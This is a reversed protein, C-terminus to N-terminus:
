KSLFNLFYQNVAGPLRRKCKDCYDLLLIDINKSYLIQQLQEFQSIPAFQVGCEQCTILKVTRVKAKTFIQWVRKVGFEHTLEAARELCSSVCSFCCICRYQSYTMIRVKEYDEFEIARTPCVYQCAACVTCSKEIFRTKCFLFIVAILMVEGSLIHISLMNEELFSISNLSGHTLIYGTLFPLATIVILLYDSKSSSLRVESSLIRRTLFFAALGLVFLIMWDILPEPLSAWTWEFVSEEWLVIHGELCIPVLILCIHFIIQVVAKAPNLTLARQLFLIGRRLELFINGWRLNKSKIKINKVIVYIFLIIKAFIGIIFIIFAIWLLPGEIIGRYDIIV